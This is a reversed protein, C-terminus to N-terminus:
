NNIKRYEGEQLKTYRKEIIPFREFMEPIIEWQDLIIDPDSKIINDHLEAAGAYYKLSELKKQSLYPDIFPSAIDHGKYKRLDSGIVMMKRKSDNTKDTQDVTLGAISNRIIWPYVLLGLIITIPLIARLIRKKISLLYHTLFFAGPPIFFLIDSPSLEPSILLAITAALIFFVMVWMMNQQFNTFRATFFASMSLVLVGLSVYSIQFLQSYDVFFSKPKAFGAVFFSYWFDQVAGFWFFYCGIILLVISFGYVFLLLRRLVASSFMVFSLLFAFFYVIAPLYIFTALGTFLGAYLFLDDKVVNDIRRFIQNLSLIIFSLSMLQPSLAFFDMTSCMLIVYLFAPLYNNENYAKNKLLITNLASAQLIVLLSSIVLHVWRSSGFIIDLWKYALAALPGTYDFTESYMVFGNALREGLLLWKFEALSQPLGFIIWVSRILILIFFIPIIKYPDNKRFFRLM